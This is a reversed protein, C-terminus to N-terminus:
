ASLRQMTSIIAWAAGAIFLMKLGLKIRDSQIRMNRERERAEDDKQIIQRIIELFEEAANENKQYRIITHQGSSDIVMATSQNRDIGDSEMAYINSCVLLLFILCQKKM